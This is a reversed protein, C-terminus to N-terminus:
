VECSLPSLFARAWPRTPLCRPFTVGAPACLADAQGRWSCPSSRLAATIGLSFTQGHHWKSFLKNRKFLVQVAITFASISAVAQATMLPKVVITSYNM